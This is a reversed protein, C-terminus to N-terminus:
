NTESTMKHSSARRRRVDIDNDEDYVYKAFRPHTELGDDNEDEDGVGPSAYFESPLKSSAAYTTRNIAHPSKSPTDLLGKDDLDDDLDEVPVEEDDPNEDNM